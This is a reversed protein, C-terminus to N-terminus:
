AKGGLKDAIANVRRDVSRVTIAMSEVTQNATGIAWIPQTAREIDGAVELATTALSAIKRAVALLTVLLVAVVLVVVGGLVFGLNWYSPDSGDSM